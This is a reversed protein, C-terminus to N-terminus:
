LNPKISSASRKEVELYGNGTCEADILFMNISDIADHGLDNPESLIKIYDRTQEETAGVFILQAMLSMDVKLQIARAHIANMELTQAFMSIKDAERVEDYPHPIEIRGEPETQKSEKKVPIKIVRARQKM